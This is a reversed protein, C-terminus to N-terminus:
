LFPIKLLLNSGQYMEGTWTVTQSEASLSLSAWHCTTFKMFGQLGILIQWM